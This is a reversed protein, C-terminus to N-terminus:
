PDFPMKNCPTPQAMVGGSSSRQGYESPITSLSIVTKNVTKRSKLRVYLYTIIVVIIITVAVYMVINTTKQEIKLEEIHELNKVHHFKLEQLSIEKEETVNILRLPNPLIINEEYLDKDYWKSMIKIKCNEIKILYSGTLTVPIQNCNQEIRENLMNIAFIIQANMEIVIKKDNRKYPCHMNNENFLNEICNDKVVVLKSTENSNYYIVNDNTLYEKNELKIEMGQKSPVPQIFLKRYVKTSMIPIRIIFIINQGSTAVTLRVDKLKEFTVNSRQIEEDTLINRSLLGLSSTFMIGEVNDIIKELHTVHYRIQELKTEKRQQASANKMEMYQSILKGMQSNYLTTLKDLQEDYQKNIRIQNNSQTIANHTNTGLLKLKNEIETRDDDDMTGYLYKLGTGFINLLGRKARTHPVLTRLKTRLHDIQHDLYPDELDTVEKEIDDIFDEYKTVNFMHLVSNYGTILKKQGLELLTYGNGHSLDTIELKQAPVPSITLLTM